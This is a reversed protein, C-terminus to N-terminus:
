PHDPTALHPPTGMRLMRSMTFGAGLGTINDEIREGFTGFTATVVVNVCNLVHPVPQGQEGIFHISRREVHKMSGWEPQSALVLQAELHDFPDPGDLEYMIEGVQAGALTTIVFIM